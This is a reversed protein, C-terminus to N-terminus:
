IDIVDEHDRDPRHIRAAPPRGGEPGRRGPEPPPPMAGRRRGHRMVVPMDGALSGLVLNIVGVVLAGLFAAFFGEVGFGPVIEAALLLLLANIFLIGVGLTMIVFPLAFLVLLPKLFANFLGLMVVVIALSKGDRFSIGPIIEAAVFIGLANIGWRLLTTVFPHRGKM